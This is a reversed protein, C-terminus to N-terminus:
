PHFLCNLTAPTVRDGLPFKHVTRRYIHCGISKQIGFFHIISFVVFRWCNSFVIAQIDTNELTTTWKLKRSVQYSLGVWEVAIRM